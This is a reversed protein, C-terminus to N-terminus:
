GIESDPPALPLSLRFLAGGGAVNEAALSGGHARAIQRSVALGLGSGGPKTTFYPEFLREVPGEPLGAGHDRVRIELAGGALGTEVELLGGEPMAQVGNLLVNVLAQHVHVPDALARPLEPALDSAIRVRARGASKEILEIASRVLGNVDTPRLEPAQPRAYDLYKGTIVGLRGVERRLIDLFERHPHGAPFDGDIIELAGGLAGLPNRVEHAMGAALTGLTALRDARRLTEVTAELDKLARDREAATAEARQRLARERDALLGALAGIVFFMALEVGQSVQYPLHTQWQLTIHPIYSLTCGGAALLGGRLGYWMAALLIPVYYLRQYVNHLVYHSPDTTYHAIAVAAIGLVIATPRVAPHIAPRSSM